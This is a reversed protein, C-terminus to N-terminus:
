LKAPPQNIRAKIFDCAARMAAKDQMNWISGPKHIEFSHFQGSRTGIVLRKPFLYQQTLFCQNVSVGALDSFQLKLAPEDTAFRARSLFVLNSETVFLRGPVGTMAEAGRGEYGNVNALWYANPFTRWPWESALSAPVSYPDDNLNTPTLKPPGFGQEGSWTGNQTAQLLRGQPDFEFICFRERNIGGGTAVASYGGGAAFIWVAVTKESRYALKHEDSSVADPEGLALIVEEKTTTGVTFQQPTLQTLNTRAYGTDRQPTPVVLLVCGTVCMLLAFLAALGFATLLRAFITRKMKM